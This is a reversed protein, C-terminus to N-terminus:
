KRCIVLLGEGRSGRETRHSFRTDSQAARIFQTVEPAAPRLVNDATYCGTSSMKNKLDNWYNLYWDKDADQFVFDWPGPLTNVLEHADALRADILHSVGAASFNRKAEAHREPDIEITTVKGGTKAAAMALWITSHGTSTGVELINKAKQKVILDHLLQGDEYSVNWYNIGQSWTNKRENLFQMAKENLQNQTQSHVPKTPSPHQAIAAKSAVLLAALLISPSHINKM